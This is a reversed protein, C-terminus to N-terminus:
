KEPKIWIEKNYIGSNDYAATAINGFNNMYTILRYDGGGIPDIDVLESFDNPLNRTVAQIEPESVESESSQVIGSMPPIVIAVLIGLIVIVIVIEVLTFVENKSKNKM